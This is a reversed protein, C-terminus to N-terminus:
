IKSQLKFKKLTGQCNTNDLTLHLLVFFVLIVGISKENWSGFRENKAFLKAYNELPQLRKFFSDKPDM